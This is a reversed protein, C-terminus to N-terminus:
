AVTEVSVVLRRQKGNEDTPVSGSRGVTGTRPDYDVLDEAALKPLDVHHLQRRVQRRTSETRRDAVYEALDDVSATEDASEAFYALVIRRSEAALAVMVRDVTEPDAHMAISLGPM